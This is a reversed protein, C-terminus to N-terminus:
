RSLTEVKARLEDIQQQIQAMRKMQVDLERYINDIHANVERFPAARSGRPGARGQGGPQAKTM